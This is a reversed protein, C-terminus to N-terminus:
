LGTIEPELLWAPGGPTCELLSNIDVLTGLKRKVKDAVEALCIVHVNPGADITFCSQLGAERWSRVARMVELTEPQWYYLPPESTMMVSHMLNSDQEVIDAFTLFDRELLANRCIELRRNADAVRGKQLPSSDALKHGDSSIVSKHEQNVLVIFDVLDWHESDAISAAFSSEHDTGVKWEVFGGPISRSASGSGTRALRSLEIESVELGLSTCAALALASYASASSAIGAGTPFNNESIVRAKTNINAFDRVRDLFASVRILAAEDGPQNNLVLNDAGLDSDFSVTTRTELPALNMSLSGNAPIRLEHDRNGWYKIFAINPHAAATATSIM